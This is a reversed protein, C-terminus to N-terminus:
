KGQNESYKDLKDMMEVIHSDIKNPRDTAIYRETQPVIYKDGLERFGVHYWGDKDFTGETPHIDSYEATIEFTGNSWSVNMYDGSNDEWSDSLEWGPKDVKPEFAENLFNEFLKIRKLKM